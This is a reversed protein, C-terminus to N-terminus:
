LKFGDPTHPDITQAMFMCNCAIVITLELAQVVWMPSEAICLETICFFSLFPADVTFAM